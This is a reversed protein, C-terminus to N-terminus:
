RLVPAQGQGRGKDHGRGGRADAPLLRSQRPAQAHRTGVLDDRHLVLHQGGRGHQARTGRHLSGRVGHFRCERAPPPIRPHDDALHGVLEESEGRAHGRPVDPCSDEEGEENVPWVLWSPNGSDARVHDPDATLDDLVEDVIRAEENVPADNEPDFEPFANHKELVDQADSKKALEQRLWWKAEDRKAVDDMNAFSWEQYEFGDFIDGSEGPHGFVLRSRRQALRGLAEYVWETSQESIGEAQSEAYLNEKKAHEAPGRGPVVEDWRSNVDRILARKLRTRFPRRRRLRARFRALRGTATLAPPRILAERLRRAQSAPPTVTLDRLTVLDPLHGLADLYLWALVKDLKATAADMDYFRNRDGYKLTMDNLLVRLDTIYWSATMRQRPPPKALADIIDDVSRKEIGHGALWLDEFDLPDTLERRALDDSLMVPTFPGAPQVDPRVQGSVWDLRTTFIDDLQDRLPGDPIARPLNQRLQKDFIETLEAADSLRLMALVTRRIRDTVPGDLLYDILRRQDRPSLGFAPNGSLSRLALDNVAARIGDLWTHATREEVPPMRLGSVIAHQGRGRLAEVARLVQETTLEQEVELDHLRPDALRPSFRLPPQVDPRVGGRDDLRDHYIQQLEAVLDPATISDDLLKRLNEDLVQTLQDSDADRLLELAQWQAPGDALRRILRGLDHVSLASARRGSLHAQAQHVLRAPAGVRELWEDLRRQHMTLRLDAANRLQEDSRGALQPGIVLLRDRTPDDAPDISSLKKSILGLSFPQAPRADKFVEGTAPDARRALLAALDPRLWHGDPIGRDLAATVTEDWVQQLQDAETIRILDLAQWRAVGDAAEIILARKAAVSLAAYSPGSLYTDIQDARRGADRLRDLWILASTRPSRQFGPGPEDSLGLPRAVAEDSRSGVALLAAHYQPITLDDRHDAGALAPSITVLSFAEGDVPFTRQAHEAPIRFSASGGPAPGAAAATVHDDGPYEPPDDDPAPVRRGSPCRRAGAAGPARGPRSAAPRDGEARGRLRHGAPIAEALRKALRGRGSLEALEAPTSADLLDLVAMRSADTVPQRLGDWVLQAKQDSRLQPAPFRRLYDDARGRLRHGAPFAAALRRPLRGQDQAFLRRVTDDDLLDLLNLVEVRVDDTVAATLLDWILPDLGPVPREPPRAAAREDDPGPEPRPGLRFERARRVANVADELAQLELQAPDHSSRGASPTLSAPLRPRPLVRSGPTDLLDEPFADPGIRDSTFDEARARLGHGLPFARVLWRGLPSDNLMRALLAEPTSRLLGLVAVRADDTLMGTLLERILRAKEADTLDTRVAKQEDTLKAIAPDAPDPEVNLYARARRVRGATTVLATLHARTVAGASRKEKKAQGVMTALERLQQSTVPADHALPPDQLSRFESRLHDLGIGARGAGGTGRGAAILDTLRRLNTLGALDASGDDFVESAVALFQFLRTRAAQPRDGAGPVARALASDQHHFGIQRALEAFIEADAPGSRALSPALHDVMAMVSDVQQSSFHHAGLLVRARQGSTAHMATALAQGAALVPALRGRAAEIAQATAPTVAPTDGLLDLETRAGLRGRAQRYTNLAGRLGALQTPGVQRLYAEVDDQVSQLRAPEATWSERAAALVAAAAADLEGAATTM